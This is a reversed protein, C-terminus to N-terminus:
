NMRIPHRPHMWPQFDGYMLLVWLALIDPRDPVRAFVRAAYPHVKYKRFPDLKKKKKGKM